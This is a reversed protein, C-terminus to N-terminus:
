EMEGAYSNRVRIPDKHTDEFSMFAFPDGDEVRLQGCEILWLARQLTAALRATDEGYKTGGWTRKSIKRGIQLRACWSKNTKYVKCFINPPWKKAEPVTITKRIPVEAEVIKPLQGYIKGVKQEHHKFQCATSCFAKLKTKRGCYVCTM